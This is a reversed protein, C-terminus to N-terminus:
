HFLYFQNKCVAVSKEHLAAVSGRFLSPRPTTEPALQPTTGQSSYRNGASMANDSLDERSDITSAAFSFLRLTLFILNTKIILSPLASHEGEQPISETPATLWFQSM